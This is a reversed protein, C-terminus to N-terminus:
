MRDHEVVYRGVVPRRENFLRGLHVRHLPGFRRLVEAAPALGTALLGCPNRLAEDLIREPIEVEHECSDFFGHTRTGPQSEKFALWLGGDRRVRLMAGARPMTLEATDFYDNEQFRTPRQHGLGNGEVLKRWDEEARLRYKLERERPENVM